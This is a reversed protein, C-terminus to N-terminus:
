TMGYPIQSESKNRQAYHGGLGGMNSCIRQRFQELQEWQRHLSTWAGQMAYLAKKATQGTKSGTVRSRLSSTKTIHFPKPPYVSHFALKIHSPETVGSCGAKTNHAKRNGSGMM